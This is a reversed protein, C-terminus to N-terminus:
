RDTMNPIAPGLTHSFQPHFLPLSASLPILGQRKNVEHTVRSFGSSASNLMMFHSKNSFRCLALTSNSSTFSAFVALSVSSIFLNEGRGDQLTRRNVVVLFSKREFITKAGVAYSKFGLTSAQTCTIVAAAQVAAHQQAAHTSSPDPEFGTSKLLSKTTWDHFASKTM